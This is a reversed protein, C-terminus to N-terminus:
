MLLTKLEPNQKYDQILILQALFGEQKTCLRAVIKGTVDVSVLLRKTTYLGLRSLLSCTFGSVPLNQAGDLTYIARFCCLSGHRESFRLKLIIVINLGEQQVWHLFLHRGRDGRGKEM